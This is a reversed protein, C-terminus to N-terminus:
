AAARDQQASAATAQAAGRVRREVARPLPVVPADRGTFASSRVRRLDAITLGAELPEAAIAQAISGIESRSIGIDNLTRDSLRILAGYTQHQRRARRLAEALGRLPATVARWASYLAAARAENAKRLHVRMEPNANFWVQDIVM